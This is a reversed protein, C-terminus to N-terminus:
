KPEAKTKIEDFTAKGFLKLAMQVRSRYFEDAHAALYELYERASAVGTAALAYIAASKPGVDVVAKKAEGKQIRILLDIVSPNGAFRSLVRVSEEIIWLNIKPMAHLTDLLLRLAEESTDGLESLATVSYWRILPNESPNVSVDMLIPRAIDLKLKKSFRTKEYKWMKKFRDDALHLSHTIAGLSERSPCARMITIAEAKDAENGFRFVDRLEKLLVELAKPDNSDILAESAEVRIEPNDSRLASALGEIDGKEKMKKINPSFLPM